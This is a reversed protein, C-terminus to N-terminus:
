VAFVMRLEMEEVDDLLWGDLAGLLIWLWLAQGTIYSVWGILM